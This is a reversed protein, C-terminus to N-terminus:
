YLVLLAYFHRTGWSSSSNYITLKKDDSITNVWTNGSNSLYPLPYNGLLACTVGYISRGAPVYTALNVTTQSPSSATGAGVNVQVDIGKFTFKHETLPITGTAM